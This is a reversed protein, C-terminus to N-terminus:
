IFILSLVIIAIIPMLLIGFINWSFLSFEYGPEVVANQRVHTFEENTAQHDNPDYSVEVKTGVTYKSLDESGLSDSTSVTAGGMKYSDTSGVLSTSEYRVNGTAYKMGNVNYKSVILQHYSPTSPKSETDGFAITTQSEHGGSYIQSIIVEGETKPWNVSANGLNKWRNERRALLAFIISLLPIVWIANKNLSGTDSATLYVIFTIIASIVLVQAFYIIDAKELRFENYLSKYENTIPQNCQDSE